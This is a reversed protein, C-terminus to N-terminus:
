LPKVPVCIDFIHKGQPHDKPDPGYLEFCPKDDPQYGSEPLWQGYVWNWADQYGDPNIEFHATVYTGGEIKMKGIESDVKANEPVTLCVSVRLKNEDTVEPNDHYVCILKTDPGLLDRSGAWSCIRGILKEFLSADGKYPGVHRVYAVTVEPLKKVEVSDPKISKMNMRRIINEKDYDRAHVNDKGKNSIIEGTNSENQCINSDDNYLKDKRWQSPTVGFKERFSRSFQASGSYGCDFAIETMNKKPNAALMMAAKEVRVRQIFQNLTEDMMATFIRHFHFPSFGAVSSLKKLSLDGEAINFEIYDIVRNIRSTYTEHLYKKEPKIKKM